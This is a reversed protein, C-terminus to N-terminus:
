PRWEIVGGNENDEKVSVRIYRDMGYWLHLWELVREAMLECSCSPVAGPPDFGAMIGRGDKIEMQIKDLVELFELERDDHFVEITAHGYFKHRHPEALFRYPEKAGPFYHLGDWNFQVEIYRKLHSGEM